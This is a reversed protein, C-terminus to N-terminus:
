GEEAGYEEVKETHNSIKHKKRGGGVGRGERKLLYREYHMGSNISTRDPVFRLNYTICFGDAEESTPSRALCLFIDPLVHSHILNDAGLFPFILSM